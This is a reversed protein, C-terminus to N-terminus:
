YARQCPYRDPRLVAVPRYLAVRGSLLTLYSIDIRDVHM